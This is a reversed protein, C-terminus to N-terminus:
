QEGWSPAEIDDIVETLEFERHLGITAGKEILGLAELNKVYKRLNGAVHTILAVPKLEIVIRTKNKPKQENM